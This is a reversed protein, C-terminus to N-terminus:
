NDYKGNVVNQAITFLKNRLEIKPTAHKENKFDHFEWNWAEYLLEALDDLLKDQGADSEYKKKADKGAMEELLENVKDGFPNGENAMKNIMQAM